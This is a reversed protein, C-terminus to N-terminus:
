YTTNLDLTVLWTKGNQLASLKHRTKVAKKLNVQKTSDLTLLNFPLQNTPLISHLLAEYLDSITCAVPLDITPPKPSGGQSDAQPQKPADIDAVLKYPIKFSEPRTM